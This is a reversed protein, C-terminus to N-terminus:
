AVMKPQSEVLDQRTVLDVVGEQGTHRRFTDLMIRKTTAAASTPVIVADHVPLAPFGEAISQLLVDELIQSELFQCHHGIGTYFYRAIAPHAAEIASTVDSISVRKPFQERTGQPFRKLPATAFAMAAMVKKIGPRYAEFGPVAYLDSQPPAVGALGYLLRPMIQGYDLEVPVEGNLRLYQLRDLKSMPQWCGGFFRGGSEFSGNTFSRCLARKNIDFSGIGVFSLDAEVLHRNITLLRQRAELTFPTDDYELLRGQASRHAKASKLAVM